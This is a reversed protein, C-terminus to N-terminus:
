VWASKINKLIKIQQQLDNNKNTYKNLILNIQNYHIQVLQLPEFNGYPQTGFVSKEPTSM